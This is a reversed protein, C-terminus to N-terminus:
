PPLEEEPSESPPYIRQDSLREEEGHEVMAALVRPIDLSRGVSLREVVAQAWSLACRPEYVGDLRLEEGELCFTLQRGDWSRAITASVRRGPAHAWSLITTRTAASAGAELRRRVNGRARSHRLWGVLLAVGASSGQRTWLWRSAQQHPQRLLSALARQGTSLPPLQQPQTPAMPDAILRQLRYLMPLPAVCRYSLVEPPAWSIKLLELLQHICVTAADTTASAETTMADQMDKWWHRQQLASLEAHVASVQCVRKVLAEGPPRRISSAQGTDVEVEIYMHGHEDKLIDFTPVRRALSIDAQFISQRRGIPLTLCVGWNRQLRALDGYFHDNQGAFTRLAAAGAFLTQALEAYRSKRRAASILRPRLRHLLGPPPPMVHQPRLWLSGELQNVVDVVVDADGKAQLVLEIVEQPNPLMEKAKGQKEDEGDTEEAEDQKHELEEAALDVGSSSTILKTVSQAQEAVHAHAHRVFKWLKEEQEEEEQERGSDEVWKVRKSKPSYCYPHIHTGSKTDGESGGTSTSAVAPHGALPKKGAASEM